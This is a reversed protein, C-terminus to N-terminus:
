RKATITLPGATLRVEVVKAVGFPLDFGCQAAAARVVCEGLPHSVGAKDVVTMAYGGDAPATSLVALGWSPHTEYHGQYLFLTGVRDGAATLLPAAALYRGGAIELTARYREGLDRVEATRWLVAGAGVAAALLVAVLQGVLRRTLRFRRARRVPAAVTDPTSLRALVGAEFRATPAFGPALALLGDSTDALERLEDRCTPCGRLHRQVIPRDQEDLIGLAFEPLLELVEGCCVEDNM